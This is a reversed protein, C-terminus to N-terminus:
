WFVGMRNVPHMADMERIGIETSASTFLTTIKEGLMVNKDLWFPWILWIM